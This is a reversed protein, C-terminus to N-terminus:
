KITASINGYVVCYTRKKLLQHLSTCVATVAEYYIKVNEHTTKVYLHLSFANVFENLCQKRALKVTKLNSIIITHLSLITNVYENIYIKSQLNSLKV